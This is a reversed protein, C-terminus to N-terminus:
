TKLRSAKAPTPLRCGSGSARTGPPDHDIGSGPHRAANVLLKVFLQSLRSVLRRSGSPLWKETQLLQGQAKQLKKILLPQAQGKGHLAQEQHNKLALLGEFIEDLCVACVFANYGPQVKM